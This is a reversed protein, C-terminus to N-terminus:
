EECSKFSEDNEEGAQELKLEEYKKNIKILKQKHMDEKIKYGCIISKNRVGTYKRFHSLALKENTIYKAPKPINRKIHNHADALIRLTHENYVIVCEKHNNYNSTAKHYKKLYEEIGDLKKAMRDFKKNLMDNDKQRNSEYIRLQESLSMDLRDIKPYSEKLRITLMEEALSIVEVKTDATINQINSM